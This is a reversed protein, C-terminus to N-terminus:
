SWSPVLNPRRRGRRVALSRWLRATELDLADEHEQLWAMADDARIAEAFRAQDGLQLLIFATVFADGPLRRLAVRPWLGDEKQLDALYEIGKEVCMGDGGGCLLARLSVATALPDGWGGDSKQGQIVVRILERCFPMHSLGLEDLRIVMMGAASAAKQSLETVLRVSAEARMELCLRIIREYQKEVWLRELQRVTVM